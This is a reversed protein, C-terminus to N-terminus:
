IVKFVFGFFFFFLCTFDLLLLAGNVAFHNRIIGRVRLSEEAYGRSFIEGMEEVTACKKGVGAEGLESVTTNASLEEKGFIELKSNRIQLEPSPDISRLDAM